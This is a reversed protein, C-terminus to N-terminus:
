MYICTYIIDTSEGYSFFFGGNLFFSYAIYLVFKRPRKCQEKRIDDMQTGMEGIYTHVIASGFATGAGRLSLALFVIWIKDALGYM